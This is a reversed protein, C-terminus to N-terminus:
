VPLNPSVLKVPQVLTDTQLPISNSAMDCSGRIYTLFTYLLYLQPCIISGIFDYYSNCNKISFFIALLSCCFNVSIISIFMTFNSTKDTNDNSNVTKTILTM